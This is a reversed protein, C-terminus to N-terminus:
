FLPSQEEAWIQFEDLPNGDLGVALMRLSEGNLTVNVFHHEKRFVIQGPNHRRENELKSGGGGTIIYIIKNHQIREYFHDHGTFVICVRYQELIPIISEQLIRVIKSSPFPTTNFPMHRGSSYPPHHAFVIIIGDKKANRFNALDKSLWDIQYRGISDFSYLITTDLCVFHIRGYNFSYWTNKFGLGNDSSYSCMFCEMKEFAPSLNNGKGSYWGLPLGLRVKTYEHNGPIFYFKTKGNMADSVSSFFDQWDSERNAGNVADGLHLIFVPELKLMFTVLRKHIQAGSKGYSDGYVIFNFPEEKSSNQRM